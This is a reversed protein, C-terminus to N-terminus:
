MLALIANQNAYAKSDTIFAVIFALPSPSFVIPLTREAKEDHM